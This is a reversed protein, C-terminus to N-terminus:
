TVIMLMVFLAKESLYGNVIQTFYQHDALTVIILIVFLAKESIHGNVIPCFITVTYGDARKQIYVHRGTLSVLLWRKAHMRQVLRAVALLIDVIQRTSGAESANKLINVSRPYQCKQFILTVDDITLYSRVPKKEGRM